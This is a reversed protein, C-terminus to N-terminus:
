CCPRSRRNSGSHDGSIPITSTKSPAPLGRPRHVPSNEKYGARHSSHSESRAGGPGLTQCQSGCWRLSRLEAGRCNVLCRRSGPIGGRRLLARLSLVMSRERLKGSTHRRSRCRRPLREALRGFAREWGYRTGWVGTLASRDRGGGVWDLREWEGEGTHRRGKGDRM